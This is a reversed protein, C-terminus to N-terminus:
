AIRKIKLVGNKLHVGPVNRASFVSIVQGTTATIQSTILRVTNEIDVGRDVFARTRRSTNADVLAGNLRTSVDIYTDTNIIASMPVSATFDLEYVGPTTVTFTMGAVLVEKGESGYTIEPGLPDTIYADPSCDCEGQPGAPGVPGQPGTAGQPGRCGRDGKDGQPGAPGQPGQSIGQYDLLWKDVAKIFQELTQGQSFDIVELSSGAHRVCSFSNVETECSNCPQSCPDQCQNCNNQCM